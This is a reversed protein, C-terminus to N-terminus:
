SKGLKQCINPVIDMLPFGSNVEIKHTDGEYLSVHIPIPLTKHRLM